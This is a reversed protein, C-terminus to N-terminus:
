HTLALIKIFEIYTDIHYEGAYIIVDNDYLFMRALLYADMILAGIPLFLTNVEDVTKQVINILMPLPLSDKMYNISNLIEITSNINITAMLDGAKQYIFRYIANALPGNREQLKTLEAAIRTMKQGNRIVTTNDIHKFINFYRQCPQKECVKIKMFPNHYHPQLLLNFFKLYNKVIFHIMKIINSTTSILEDKNLTPLIYSLYDLNFPDVIWKSQEDEYYRTDAYHFRIIPYFPCKTKDYVFCTKYILPLQQLYSVNNINTVKRENLKTFPYEIFVDTTQKNIFRKSLELDFWDSIQQNFQNHNDKILIINKGLVQKDIIDM